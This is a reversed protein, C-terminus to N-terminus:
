EENDLDSQPISFKLGVAPALSEDLKFKYTHEGDPVDFYFTNAKGPIVDKLEQFIVGVSKTTSLPKTLVKKEGEWMTVTFKQGGKMKEDYCLRASIKMRTPGVVRVKVNHNNSHVYYTILKEKVIATVVKEYALAEITVLKKKIKSPTFYFKLAAEGAAPEELRFVYTHTGEPVNISFKRNKGSVLDSNKYAITSKETQTTFVKVEESGELARVTFRESANGSKAFALRSLVKMKGPGDVEITITNSKTLRYYTREKGSMLLKVSEGQLPRVTITKAAYAQIAILLVVCLILIYKKMKM